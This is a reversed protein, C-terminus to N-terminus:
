WTQDLIVPSRPRGANTGGHLGDANMDHDGTVLINYGRAMWETMNPALWM